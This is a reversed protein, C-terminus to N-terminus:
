RVGAKLTRFSAPPWYAVWVKGIVHDRPVPGWHRSDDSRARNDGLVFYSDAPVTRASLTEGSPHEVYPEDLPVGNVFVTGGEIRVTDGPLGIVRKVFNQSPDRPWRFVIVDGYSPLGFPRWFQGEEAEFGPIFRAVRAADIEMYVARSVLVRDENALQPDMSPGEVRYNQIIAQLVLVLFAALAITEIAERLAARMKENYISSGEAGHAEGMREPREVAYFPGAESAM